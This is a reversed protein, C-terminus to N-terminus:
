TLGIHHKDKPYKIFGFCISVVQIATHSGEFHDFSHCKSKILCAFGIFTSDDKFLRIEPKWFSWILDTERVNLNLHNKVPKYSTFTKVFKIILNNCPSRSLLLMIETM